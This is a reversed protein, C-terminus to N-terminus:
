KQRHCRFNMVVSTVAIILMANLLSLIKIFVCICEACVIVRTSSNFGTCQFHLKNAYKVYRTFIQLFISNKIGWLLKAVHRLHPPSHQPKTAFKM